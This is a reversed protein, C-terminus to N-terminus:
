RGAQKEAESLERRLRDETTASQQTKPLEHFVALQERVVDSTPKGEAALIKAKLGLVSLRRQGRTMKSLARDVAAEAEPLKKEELLVRALRAPPNYDDPMEKERAALLAEAKPAEGLYLYTDVRHADFTSALTADPAAGAAKELLAERRRATQVAADHKGSQDLLEVLQALIDSRDDASLPASEDSALADLRAFAKARAEKARGDDKPLREACSDVTSAFDAAVSSNGTRDMERLGLAVCKRLAADTRERELASALLVLREPRARDAAPTKELAAAYASAAAAFDGRARADYGKRVLAEAPTPKRKASVAEVGQEVFARFDNVSASGIWRGVVKEDRPDIVLFTPWADLPFQDVFAKNVPNESDISLWVVADAVPRLGPDPFVYRKMSLCTHCWSAWTDSVIPKHENRARALAAPYDDEVFHIGSTPAALAAAVVVALM